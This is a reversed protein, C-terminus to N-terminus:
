CRRKVDKENILECHVYRKHMNIIKEIRGLHSYGPFPMLIKTLYLIRMEIM